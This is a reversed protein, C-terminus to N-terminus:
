SSDGYRAWCTAGLEWTESPEPSSGESNLESFSRGRSMVGLAQNYSEPASMRRQSSSLSKVRPHVAHLHDIVDQNDPGKESSTSEASFHRSRAGGEESSKPTASPSSTRIRRHHRVPQLRPPLQPLTEGLPALNLSSRFHPDSIVGCCEAQWWWCECGGLFSEDNMEAWIHNMRYISFSCWMSLEKNVTAIHPHTHGGDLVYKIGYASPMWKPIIILRILQCWNDRPQVTGASAM